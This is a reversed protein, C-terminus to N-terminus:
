PYSDDIIKNNESFTLSCGGVDSLDPYSKDNDEDNYINSPKFM